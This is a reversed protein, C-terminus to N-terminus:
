PIINFLTGIIGMFAILTMLTLISAITYDWFSRSDRWIETLNNNKIFSKIYNYQAMGM